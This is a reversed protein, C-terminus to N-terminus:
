AATRLKQEQGLRQLVTWFWQPLDDPDLSDLLNKIALGLETDGEIVLRRRFFLTDPDEQRSALLLFDSWNGSISVQAQARAAVQLGANNRTLFWELQLDRVNLRLWRDRLIDFAGDALPAAFLRNLSQQLALRQLVFPVHRTLPLCRSAGRLLLGAPSLM